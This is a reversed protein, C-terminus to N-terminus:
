ESGRVGGLVPSLSTGPTLYDGPRVASELTSPTRSALSCDCAGADSSLLSFSQDKHKSSLRFFDLTLEISILILSEHCLGDRAPASKAPSLLLLAAALSCISLPLASPCACQEGGVKISTSESALSHAPSISPRFARLAGSNSSESIPRLRHLTYRPPNTPHHAVFTSHGGVRPM